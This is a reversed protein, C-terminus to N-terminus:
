WQAKAQAVIGVDAIADATVDPAATMADVSAPRPSTPPQPQERPAVEGAPTMSAESETRDLVIRPGIQCFMSM